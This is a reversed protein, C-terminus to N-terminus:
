LSCDLFGKGHLINHIDLGRSSVGTAIMIPCKGNRFARIADERERQTRDGHISTCPFDKNFLFDDIEDATRKSNVFILTRCPPASYLIDELAQRKSSAEVFCIDKISQLKLMKDFLLLSILLKGAQYQFSFQRCSGRPIRVHEHALHEKALDRCVKPFTASFM